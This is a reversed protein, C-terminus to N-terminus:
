DDNEVTVRSVDPATFPLDDYERAAEESVTVQIKEGNDKYVTVKQKRKSM